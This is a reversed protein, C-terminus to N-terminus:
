EKGDLCRKVKQWYSTLRVQVGVIDDLTPPELYISGHNLQCGSQDCSFSIQQHTHKIASGCVECLSEGPRGAPFVTLPQRNGFSLIGISCAPCNIEGM